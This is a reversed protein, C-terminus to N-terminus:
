RMLELLRRELGEKIDRCLEAPDTIYMAHVYLIRRDASVELSLTGPTLTILGSLLTIELDTEADLSVAVVGPRMHWTPTVVDYAVRLNALILKWLFFAAFSIALSVKRFYMSPGMLPRAFWLIVYSVAYGVILNTLSFQGIAAVWILALWINWLFVIM